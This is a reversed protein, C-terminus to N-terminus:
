LVLQIRNETGRQDDIELNLNEPQWAFFSAALSSRSGVKGHIWYGTWTLLLVIGITWAAREAITKQSM